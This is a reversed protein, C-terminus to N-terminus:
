LDANRPLSFKWIKMNIGPGILPIQTLRGSQTNRMWFNPRVNFTEIFCFEAQSRYVIRYIIHETHQVTLLFVFIIMTFTFYEM